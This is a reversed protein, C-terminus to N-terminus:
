LLVFIDSVTFARYLIMSDVVVAQSGAHQVPWHRLREGTELDLLHYGDGHVIVSDGVVTPAVSSLGTEFRWQVEGTETDIGLAEEGNGASVVVRDEAVAPSSYVGWEIEARWEVSGDSADLATLKGNRKAVYVTGDAVTPTSAVEAVETRWAEDGDHTFAAISETGEFHGYGYVKDAVALATGNQSGSDWRREGTEADLATVGGSSVYVTDDVVAPSGYHVTGVDARWRVSGDDLSLALTEQRTTVYLTGCGLAPSVTTRDPEFVWREEGTLLDYAGVKLDGAVYATGDGVVPTGFSSLRLGTSNTRSLRSRKADASPLDTAQRHSSRDAAGGAMPWAYGETSADCEIDPSPNRGLVNSCGSLAVAGCAALVSRRTPTSVMARM